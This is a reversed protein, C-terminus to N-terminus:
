FQYNFFNIIHLGVLKIYGSVAVDSLRKFLEVSKKDTSSDWEFDIQKYEIDM